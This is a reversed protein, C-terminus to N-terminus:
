YFNFGTVARYMFAYIAMSLMLFCFFSYIKLFIVVIEPKCNEFAELYLNRFHLLTGM